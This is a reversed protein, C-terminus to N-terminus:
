WPTRYNEIVSMITVTGIVGGTETSRLPAVSCLLRMKSGGGPPEYNIEIDPYSKGSVQVLYAFEELTQTGAQFNKLSKPTSGLLQGATNNMMKAAANTIFTIEGKLNRAVLWGPVSQLIERADATTVLAELHEAMVALATHLSKSEAAARRRVALIDVAAALTAVFVLVVLATDM